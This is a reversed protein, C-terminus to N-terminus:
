GTQRNDRQSRKVERGVIKAGRYILDIGRTIAYGILCAAHIRICPVATGSLWSRKNWIPAVLGYDGFAVLGGYRWLFRLKPLAYQYGAKDKRAVDTNEIDKANPLRLRSWLSPLLVWFSLGLGSLM